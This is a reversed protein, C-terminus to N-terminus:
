PHGIWPFRIRYPAVGITASGVNPATAGGPEDNEGVVSFAFAFDVETNTLPRATFGIVRVEGSALGGLGCAIYGAISQCAPDDSVVASLGVVSYDGLVVVDDDVSPGTNTVTLTYTLATGSLVPGGPAALRLGLDSRRVASNGTFVTNNGASLEPEDADITAANFLQAGSALDSRPTVSITLVSGSTIWGPASVGAPAISGAMCTVTTGDGSCGFGPTAGVFAAYAGSPLTDTLVVGTALSRGLNEITFTYTLTAGAIATAPTAGGAILRLDVEPELTTMASYTNNNGDPDTIASSVMVANALSGRAAPSVDATLTYIASTGSDLTALTCTVVGSAAGCGTSPAISVFTLGAPLTDTVVVNVAQAPGLNTVTVLYEIADGAIVPDPTDLVVVSLDAQLGNALAPSPAQVPLLLSFLVLLHLSLKHM